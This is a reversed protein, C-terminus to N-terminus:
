FSKGRCPFLLKHAMQIVNLCRFKFPYQPVKLIELFVIGTRAEGIIETQVLAHYRETYADNIHFFDNGACSIVEGFAAFNEHTLPEIQITNHM